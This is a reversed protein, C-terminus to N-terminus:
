ANPAAGDTNFLERARQGARKWHRSVGERAAAARRGREARRLALAEDLERELQAIHAAREDDRSRGFFASLPFWKM